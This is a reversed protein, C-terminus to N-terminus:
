DAGSKAQTPRETPLARLFEHVEAEIYRVKTGLYRPRPFNTAPDKRWRGETARSIGLIERVRSAPILTVTDTM